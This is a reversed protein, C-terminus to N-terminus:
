QGTEELDLGCAFSALAADTSGDEAPTTEVGDPAGPLAEVAVAEGIVATSLPDCIVRRRVFTTEGDVTQTTTLDIGNEVPRAEVFAHVVPDTVVDIVTMPDPVPIKVLDEEELVPAPPAEAASGSTAQSGQAETLSRNATDVAGEVASRVDAAPTELSPPPTDDPSETTTAAPTEALGTGEPVAAGGTEAQAPVPTATEEAAVSEPTQEARAPQTEAAPETAATDTEVVEDKSWSLWVALVVIAALAWIALKFLGGLTGFVGRKAM